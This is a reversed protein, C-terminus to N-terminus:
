RRLLRRRQRPQLLRHAACNSGRAAAAAKGGQEIYSLIDSKTIRGNIGTGKGALASLDVNHEKAIRRM